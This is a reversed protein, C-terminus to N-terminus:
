AVQDSKSIIIVGYQFSVLPSILQQLCFLEFCEVCGEDIAFIAGHAESKM